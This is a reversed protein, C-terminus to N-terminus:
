QRRHRACRDDPFSRDRRARGSDRDVRQAPEQARFRAADQRVRRGVRCRRSRSARGDRRDLRHAAVMAGGERAQEGVMRRGRARCAGLRGGPFSRRGCRVRAALLLCLVAAVLRLACLKMRSRGRNKARWSALEFGASGAAASGRDPWSSGKIHPCKGDRSSASKMPGVSPRYVRNRRRLHGPQLRCDMRHHRDAMFERAVANGEMHGHGVCIICLGLQCRCGLDQRGTPCNGAVVLLCDSCPRYPRVILRRRVATGEALGEHLQHDGAISAQDTADM